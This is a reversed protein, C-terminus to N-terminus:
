DGSRSPVAGGGGVGDGLAFHESAFAGGVDEVAAAVGAAATVGVVSCGCGCYVCYM